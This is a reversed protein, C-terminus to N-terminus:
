QGAGAEARMHSRLLALTHGVCAIAEQAMAEARRMQNRSVHADGRLLADGVARCFDAHAVQLRTFTDVPDGGAQDPTARTCTHGLADAMAHLVSYNGSFLQVDILERPNPQHTTTNPNAKHTLTNPSMGMRGALGVVGGPYGHVTNYFADLIDQGEVRSPFPEEAGHALHPPVSVTAKM